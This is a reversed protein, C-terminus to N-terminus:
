QPLRDAPSYAHHQEEADTMAIACYQRTQELDSHGLMAQVSFVNAGNRLMQVAFTRRLAHVCCADKIGATTALRKVLRLLGWRTFPQPVYAEGVLSKSRSGQRAPLRGSYFLPWGKAHGNAELAAMNALRKRSNTVHLRYLYHTLYASLAQKVREGFYLTRYKGGKGLLRCRGNALDLNGLTLSALESARCGTDLLFLVLAHNRLPERSGKASQLLTEIQDLSLPAKIEHRVLPPAIRAFPTEPLAGQTVLWDFLIRFFRHYDKITIPRVPRNLYPKGFRGGPEEHGHNLYYLFQRLAMTNCEAFGKRELFWLLNRVFIRRTAITHPSHLRLECDRFYEEAWMHLADLPIGTETQAPVNPWVPATLTQAPAFSHSVRLKQAASQPTVQVSM